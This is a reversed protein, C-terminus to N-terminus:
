RKALVEKEYRDADAIWEEAVPVGEKECYYNWVAGLPMTKLEELLALRKFYDGKEEAAVLM